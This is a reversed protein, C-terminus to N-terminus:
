EFEIVLDHLDGKGGSHGNFKFTNGLVRWDHGIDEFFANWGHQLHTSQLDPQVPKGTQPDFKNYLRDEHLITWVATIKKGELGLSELSASGGNEFGRIITRM